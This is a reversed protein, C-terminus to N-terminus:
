IENEKLIEVIRIGCKEIVSVASRLYNGSIEIGYSCGRRERTAQLKIICSKINNQALYYQAKNVYTLSTLIIVYCM